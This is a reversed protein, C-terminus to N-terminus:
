GLWGRMLAEFVETVSEYGEKRAKKYFEDKLQKPIRFNCLVREVGDDYKPKAGPKKIVRGTTTVAYFPLEGRARREAEKEEAERKEKKLRFQKRLSEAGWDSLGECMRDIEAPTPDREVAVKQEGRGLPTASEVSVAKKEPTHKPTHELQPQSSAVIKPVEPGAGIEKPKPKEGDFEDKLFSLSFGKKAM